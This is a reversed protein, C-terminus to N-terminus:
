ILRHQLLKAMQQEASLRRRSSPRLASLDIHGAEVFSALRNLGNALAVVFADEEVLRTEELWLGNVILTMTSRDLKPDIRAVLRDGYLVPLTYYGWRRSAAPKYVEWVYDFDFLAKARGRASVIDLPALFVAEQDTTTDIPQWLDPVVGAELAVLIPLDEALCYQVDKWGAVEVAAVEDSALMKNLHRHAEDRKAKRELFGSWSNTWERETSLGKFALAKRAFFAEAQTVTAKCDFEPPAVNKRFDYLREFNRRQHTMLEGSLWLCYLAMGSDKRARYDDVKARDIFDRNGLPGRKRLEAKVEKLLQPHQRAFAAWRGERSKRQMTVRWYPLETMPYIFLGGGYDFFERDRYLLEDLYTSQYDVVRCWMILDHNRAIVNLPDIQVAEIERLAQATGSRGIWRRGPWLGQRGLIYRRATTASISINTSV